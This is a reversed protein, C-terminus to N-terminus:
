QSKRNVIFIYLAAEAAVQRDQPFRPPHVRWTLTLLIAWPSLEKLYVARFM